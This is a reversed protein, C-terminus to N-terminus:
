ELVFWVIYCFYTIKKTKILNLPNNKIKYCFAIIIFWEFRVCFIYRFIQPEAM